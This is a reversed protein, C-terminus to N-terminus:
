IGRNKHEAYRRKLESRIAEWEDVQWDWAPVSIKKGSYNYYHVFPLDSKLLEYFMKKNSTVKTWMARVIIQRFEEKPLRIKKDVSKGYKLAEYGSMKRLKDDHSGLWFILGEISRFSGLESDQLEFETWNSLWRGLDTAGKSYINVHDVGDEGDNKM